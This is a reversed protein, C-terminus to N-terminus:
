GGLALPRVADVRAAAGAAHLAPRTYMPHDAFPHHTLFVGIAQKELLAVDQPTVERTPLVGPRDAGDEFDMFMAVQKDPGRM